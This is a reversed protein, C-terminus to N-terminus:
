YGKLAWSVSGSARAGTTSNFLYVRLSEPYVSVDGSTNATPVAFSYSNADKSAITYTGSPATGTMFSLKINQGVVYPHATQNVKIINSVVSYTVDSNDDFFDYVATVPTIGSPSLVISTVDIFPVAFNVVTGNTDTSLCAQMGADSKLKADLKTNIGEIKYLSGVPGSVSIRVKIFQFNSGYHQSVGANDVWPDGILKKTSIMTRITPTGAIVSGSYSLTIKMASLIEELDIVEEYYGVGTGSQAYIPYGATVQAQPTAWSNTTFHQEFTETTNVPLLLRGDTDIVANSKTSEIVSNQASVAFVSDTNIKLVYDPPQSVLASKQAAIGYNGATDVGSVWYTRSGGDTEFITTFGGSKKGVLKSLAYTVGERVEYTAVTLSGTSETWYLLVNNDIVQITMSPISPPVITVPISAATSSNGGIDTAVVWFTRDGSWAGLTPFTTAYTNGLSEGAAWSAGWRVEYHDISLQTANPTISLLVSDAAFSYGLSPPMPAAITVSTTAPLSFNGSTDVARLSFSSLGSPTNPWRWTTASITEALIGGVKIEYEKLDLDANQNWSLVIGSDTVTATFGTPTDPLAAKGVVVYTMEVSPSRRGLTDIAVVRLTIPADTVPAIDVSNTTVPILKFNGGSQRWSVEFRSAPSTWSFHCKTGVLGPGALYLTDTATLGAPAIPASNSISSIVTPPFVQDMEIMAYKNPNHFLGTIEIETRSSEAVSIIKVLQPNLNASALVWMAHKQPAVAFDPTVNLVTHVGAANTVTRDVVKGDPLVCSLTYPAGTLTVPSDTTVSSVTSSLIRGGIRDGSRLNDAVKVVAGPYVSCGELGTKFSVVESELRSTYLIWKGLRHAQGRSTCGFAVVETENIGYKIIGATDETYEITRRFMDQPNNWTVLAVTYRTKKSSGVYSFSGDIVNANTFIGIPDSPMDAVTAITGASWYSIGRFVSTLNALVKYADERTQIYLNCTFRPELYGFGSPVMGDCYKSIEYLAWKDIGAEDVYEGLGYRDNTQLDYYVWAPNDTWLTQFSGNWTGTYVRTVPNYNSPVKCLIGYIEYGREPVDAFQEADVSAGFMASNPYSLKSEVILATSDWWTENQLSSAVSDATLRTLRINWPGPSPLDIYYPRKYKSTTKGSITGTNVAVLKAGTVNSISGGSTLTVRISWAGVAGHPSQFSRSVATKAQMNFANGSYTVPVLESKLLTWVGGPPLYEVVWSLPSYHQQQWYGGEGDYYDVPTSPFNGSFSISISSCGSATVVNGAASVSTWDEGIMIPQYGGGNNEVEIKFSVSTGHLDGNSTNQSSMQPTAITVRAADIGAPISRVIPIGAKLEVGVTEESETTSFGSMPTQDSTGSRSDFTVGTFNMSGDAAQVPTGQLYVSRLGNVLGGIPGESVLDLIKAYQHSKLSDPDEVAVRAKGGGGKGGGGGSGVVPRVMGRGGNHVRMNDAIFTHNPTVTLNYVSENGDPSVSIVPRLHGISDVIADHETLTGALAFANYQNLLWHNETVRLSGGWYALKLIADSPHEHFVSVVSTAVRGQADFSLVEDGVKLLQIPTEGSPTMVMTNAPFCGGGSGVISM